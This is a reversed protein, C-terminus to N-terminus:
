RKSVIKIATAYTLDDYNHQVEDLEEILEDREVKLSDREEEIDKVAQWKHYIEVLRRVAMDMLSFRRATTRMKDGGGDSAILNGKADKILNAFPIEYRKTEPVLHLNELVIITELLRRETDHLIFEDPAINTGKEDRPTPAVTVPLKETVPNPEPVPLGETLGQLKEKQEQYEEDNPVHGRLLKDSIEVHRSFLEPNKAQLEKRVSAPIYANWDPVNHTLDRLYWKGQHFTLKRGQKLLELAEEVTQVKRYKM